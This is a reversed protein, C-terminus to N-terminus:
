DRRARWPDCAAAVAAFRGRTRGCARLTLLRDGEPADLDALV